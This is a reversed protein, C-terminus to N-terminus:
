QRSPPHVPPPKPPCLLLHPIYELFLISLCHSCSTISIIVVCCMHPSDFPGQLCLSVHHHFSSLSQIIILITPPHTNRRTGATWPLGPCLATFCNNNHTNNLKRKKKRRVKVQRKGELIHVWETELGSTM